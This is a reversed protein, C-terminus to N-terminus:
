DHPSEIRGGGMENYIDFGIEEQGFGVGVFMVHQISSELSCPHHDKLALKQSQNCLKQFM